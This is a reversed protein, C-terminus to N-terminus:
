HVNLQNSIKIINDWISNYIGVIVYNYKFYISEFTIEKIV